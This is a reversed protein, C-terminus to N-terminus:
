SRSPRDLAVEADGESSQARVESLSNRILENMVSVIDYCYSVLSRELNHVMTGQDIGSAGNNMSRVAHPLTRLNEGESPSFPPSNEGESPRSKPM